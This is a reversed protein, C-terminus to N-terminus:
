SSKEKRKDGMDGSELDARVRARAGRHTVGPFQRSGSGASRSTILRSLILEIIIIDINHKESM